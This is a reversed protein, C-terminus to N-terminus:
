LPYATSTLHLNGTVDRKERSSVRRVLRSLQFPISYEYVIRMALFWNFDWSFHATFKHLAITFTCGGCVTYKCTTYQIISNTWNILTRYSGAYYPCSLSIWWLFICQLISKCNIKFLPKSISNCVSLSLSNDVTTDETNRCHALRLESEMVNENRENWDLKTSKTSVRIRCHWCPM